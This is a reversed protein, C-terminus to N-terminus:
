NQNCNGEVWTPNYYSDINGSCITSADSYDRNEFICKDYAACYQETNSPNNICATYTNLM